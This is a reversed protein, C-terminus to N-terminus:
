VNKGKDGCPKCKVAPIPMSQLKNTYLHAINQM